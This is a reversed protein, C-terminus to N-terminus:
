LQSCCISTCLIKPAVVDMATVLVVDETPVPYYNTPGDIVFAMLSSTINGDRYLEASGGATVFRKRRKNLLNYYNDRDCYCVVSHHSLCCDGSLDPDPVKPDRTTKGRFEPQIGGLM